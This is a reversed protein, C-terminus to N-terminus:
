DNSALRRVESQFTADLAAARQIASLASPRDGAAEHALALTHHHRAGTEDLRVAQKAANVADGDGIAILARALANFNEAEAPEFMAALRALAEAKHYEGRELFVEALGAIATAGEQTTLGPTALAASYLKMADETQGLVFQKKAASVSDAFAHVSFAQSEGNQGKLRLTIDEPIGDGSVDLSAMQNPTQLNFEPNGQALMAVIVASGFLAFCTGPAANSLTLKIEGVEAGASTDGKDFAGQVFLRYGLVVCTIGVAVIALRFVLAYILFGNALDMAVVKEFISGSVRVRFFGEVESHIM